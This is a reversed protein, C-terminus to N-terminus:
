LVSSNMLLLSLTKCVVTTVYVEELQSGNFAFPQIERLGNSNLMRFFNFYFLHMVFCSQTNRYCLLMNWYEWSGSFLQM